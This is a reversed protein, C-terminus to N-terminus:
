SSILLKMLEDTSFRAIISEVINCDNKWIGEVLALLSQNYDNDIMSKYMSVYIPEFKASNQLYEHLIKKWNKSIKKKFKKYPHQTTKIKTYVFKGDVDFFRKYMKKAQKNTYEAYPYPLALGTLSIRAFVQEVIDGHQSLQILAEFLSIYNEFVVLQPYMAVFDQYSMADIVKKQLRKEHCYRAFETLLVFAAAVMQIINNQDQISLKSLKASYNKQEQKIKILSVMTTAVQGAYRASQQLQDFLVHNPKIYSLKQKLRQLQVLEDHMSNQIQNESTYILSQSVIIIIKKYQKM